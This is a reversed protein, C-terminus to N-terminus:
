LTTAFNTERSNSASSSHNILAKESFIIRQSPNSNVLVIFNHTLFSFFTCFQFEKYLEMVDLFAASERYLLHGM